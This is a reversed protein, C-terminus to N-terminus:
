NGDGAPSYVGPRSGRTERAPYLNYFENIREGRRGERGMGEGRM